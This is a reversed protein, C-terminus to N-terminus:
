FDNANALVSQLSFISTLQLNVNSITAWRQTKLESKSHIKQRYHILAIALSDGFWIEWLDKALYTKLAKSFICLTSFFNIQIGSVYAWFMRSKETKILFKVEKIQEAYWFLPKGLPIGKYSMIHLFTRVTLTKKGETKELM